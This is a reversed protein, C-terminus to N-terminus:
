CSCSRALRHLRLWGGGWRHRGLAGRFGPLTVGNRGGGYGDLSDVGGAARCGGTLSFAGVGLPVGSLLWM